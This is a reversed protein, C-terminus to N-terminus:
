AALPILNFSRGALSLDSDFLNTLGTGVVVPTDLTRVTSYTWKTKNALRQQIDPATCPESAWIAKIIFWEAETLELHPRPM